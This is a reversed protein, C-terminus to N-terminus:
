RMNKIRFYVYVLLPNEWKLFKYLWKQANTEFPMIKCLKAIQLNKINSKIYRYKQKSSYVPSKMLLYVNSYTGMFYMFDIRVDEFEEGFTRKCFSMTENYLKHTIEFSNKYFSRSLTAEKTIVYYYGTNKICSLKNIKSLYKLNFLLDEGLSVDTDFRFDILERLYLKNWPSNIFYESYLKGFDDKLEKIDCTPINQCDHSDKQDGYDFIYGGIVLDANDMEMSDILIGSTKESLYDDSDVFQVYKSSAADLGANRASSVGGNIKHIVHVREDMKAFADCIEPSKDKSGDNVLFLEFDSFTQTLISEVCKKLSKESNYVPVIISLKAV